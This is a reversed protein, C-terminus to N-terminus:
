HSNFTGEGLHLLARALVLYGKQLRTWSFHEDPAHIADSSLGMGMLIVQARSIRTLLDVIPISGGEFTYCCPTDFLEGFAGELAKAIKSQSSTRIAPGSGPHLHLDIDMSPPTHRKLYEAVLSGITKPDQHPVLRCSLKAHALAPIVTKFGKGTYGGHIGNIELTPRLHARELPSYGIEGGEAKAGFNEHYKTVDFELYLKRRTEQDIEKVDDYFGPINVKGERTHVRALLEVLAHLPNYAIGGHSGSHLDCSSGRLTLDMTLIGRIGLTLAPVGEAPLGMDAVILYDARLEPRRMDLLSALGHSGSEEEGDICLKVNVPLAGRLERLSALALLTYLCQGKNDQAGRAYILDGRKLPAFPPSHWLEIPDTPQVDYHHYILLTPKEPGAELCSGFVVPAGSTEWLEAHFGLNQLYSLLWEACQMVEQLHDPDTAITAFRLFTFYDELFRNEHRHFFAQLEEITPYETHM